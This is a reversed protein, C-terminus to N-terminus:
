VMMRALCLCCKGIALLLFRRNFSKASYTNNQKPRKTEFTGKTRATECNEYRKCMKVVTAEM